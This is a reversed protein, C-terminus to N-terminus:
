RDAGAQRELYEYAAQDLITINVGFQEFILPVNRTGSMRCICTDVIMRYSHLLNHLSRPFRRDVDSEPIVAM